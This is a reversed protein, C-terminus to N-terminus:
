MRELLTNLMVSHCGTNAWQPSTVPLVADSSVATPSNDSNIGAPGAPQRVDGPMVLLVVGVPFELVPALLVSELGEALDRRISTWNHQQSRRLGNQM